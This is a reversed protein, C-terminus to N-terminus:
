KLQKSATQAKLKNSYIAVSSSPLWGCAFNYWLEKGNVFNKGEVKLIEGKRCHNIVTSSWSTEERYAAYPDIVVAWEVDPALALPESSDLVIENNKNCGGLCLLFLSALLVNKKM